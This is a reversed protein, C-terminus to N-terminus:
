LFNEAKWIGIVSLGSSLSLIKSNEIFLTTPTRNINLKQSIGRDEIFTFPYTNKSLFKRITETSEFPNIAIIKGAPIKGEKVSGSLRNMELKCPGCWTAWFIAVTKERGPFSIVKETQGQEIVPHEQASLTQGEMSLNHILLPIATLLLYIIGAAALVNNITIHKKLSNM